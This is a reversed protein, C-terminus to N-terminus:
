RKLHYHHGFQRIEHRCDFLYNEYTYYKYFIKHGEIEQLYVNLINFHRHLSTCIHHLSQVDLRRDGVVINMYMSYCYEVLTFM